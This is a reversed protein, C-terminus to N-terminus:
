LPNYHINANTELIAGWSWFMNDSWHALHRQSGNRAPSPLGCVSLCVSSVNSYTRAREFLDASMNPRMFRDFINWFMWTCMHAHIYPCLCAYVINVFCAICSCWQVSISRQYLNYVNYKYTASTVHILSSYLISYFFVVTVIISPEWKWSTAVIKWSNM